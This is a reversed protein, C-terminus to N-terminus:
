KETMELLVVGSYARETGGNCSGGGGGYGWGSLEKTPPGQNDVLVGGGGGDCGGGGDGGAGPSLSFVKLDNVRVDVGSGIGGGGGAGTWSGGNGGNSGGRAGASAFDGGGGGGSYGNGGHQWWCSGGGAAVLIEDEASNVISSPQGPGGVTVILDRSNAPEHYGDKVFGSGGGCYSGGAGGGGVGWIYLQADCTDGLKVLHLSTAGVTEVKLHDMISSGEAMIIGCMSQGCDVPGSTCHACVKVPEQMGSLLFCWNPYAPDTDSYYTYFSCEEANACMELCEEEDQVSPIVDLLNDGQSGDIKDSCLANCSRLGLSILLFFCWTSRIQFM